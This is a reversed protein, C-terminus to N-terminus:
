HGASATGTGMYGSGAGAMGHSFSQSDGIGGMSANSVGNANNANAELSADSMAGATHPGIGGNVGMVGGGTSASTGPQNASSGGKAMYGSGSISAGRSASMSGGSADLTSYSSGNRNGASTMILAGSGSMAAHNGMGASLGAVGGSVYAGTGAFALVATSLVFFSMVAIASILKKKMEIGEVSYTEEGCFPGLYLKEIETAGGGQRRM